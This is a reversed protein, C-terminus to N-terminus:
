GWTPLLSWALGFYVFFWKASRKHWEVVELRTVPDEYPLFCIVRSFPTLVSTKKKAFNKGGMKQSNVPSIDFFFQPVNRVIKSEEWFNSILHGRLHSAVNIFFLWLVQGRQPRSLDKSLVFNRIFEDVHVTCEEAVQATSCKGHFNASWSWPPIISNM